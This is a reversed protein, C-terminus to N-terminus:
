KEGNRSRALNYDSIIYTEIISIGKKEVGAREKESFYYFDFDQDKALGKKDIILWYLDYIDKYFSISPEVNWNTALTIIDYNKTQREKILTEIMRKTGSDDKWFYSPSKASKYFHLVSFIILLIIGTKVCLNLLRNKFDVLFQFIQFMLLVFLPMYFLATRDILFRSGLLEHQAINFHIGLLAIGGFFLLPIKKFNFGNKAVQYLIGFVTLVLVSAIGAYFIITVISPYNIGCFYSEVLSKVTDQWFSKTGGYYLQANKQLKLIPYATFLCTLFLSGAIPWFQQIFKSITHCFKRGQLNKKFRNFAFVIGFGILPIYFTLFAFNSLVTLIAIFFSLDRLRKKGEEIGKQFLCLSLMMFGIGLGYGRSLRFFECLFPNLNLLLFCGIQLLKSKLRKSFLITTYLYLCYSLLGPLRGLFENKGFIAFFKVLLTNLLHNNAPAPGNNLFIDKLPLRAHVLYTFSEDHTYSNVSALYVAYIFLIASIVIFCYDLFHERLKIKLISM